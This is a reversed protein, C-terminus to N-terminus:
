NHSMRKSRRLRFLPAYTNLKAVRSAWARCFNISPDHFAQLMKVSCSGALFRCLIIFLDWLVLQLVDLEFMQTWTFACKLLKLRRLRGTSIYFTSVSRRSRLTTSRRPSKRLVLDWAKAHALIADAGFSSTSIKLFLVTTILM